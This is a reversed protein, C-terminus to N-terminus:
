FGHFVPFLNGLLLPLALTPALDALDALTAAWIAGSAKGIDLLLIPLAVQWGAVMLIVFLLNVLVIQRVSFAPLSM